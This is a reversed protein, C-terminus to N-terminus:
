VETLTQCTVYWLEEILWEVLSHNQIQQKSIFHFQCLVSPIVKSHSKPKLRSVPLKFVIPLCVLCQAGATWTNVAMHEVHIPPTLHPRPHPSLPFASRRFPYISHLCMPFCPFLTLCVPPVPPLNMPKMRLVYYIHSQM